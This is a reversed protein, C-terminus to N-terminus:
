HFIMYKNVSKSLTSSKKLEKSIRAKEQPRGPSKKPEEQARRPSKEPEGPSEQTGGTSEKARMDERPSEWPREQDRKAEGQSRM